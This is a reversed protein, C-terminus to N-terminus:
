AALKRPFFFHFERRRLGDKIQILLESPRVPVIADNNRPRLDGRRNIQRTTEM